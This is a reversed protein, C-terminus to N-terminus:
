RRPPVQAPPHQGDDLVYALLGVVLLVNFILLLISM